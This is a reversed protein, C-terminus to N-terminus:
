NKKEKDKIKYDNYVDDFITIVFFTCKKEKQTNRYLAPLLLAARGREGECVCEQM